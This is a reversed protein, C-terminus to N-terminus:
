IHILSLGGASGFCGARGFSCGSIGVCVPSILIRSSHNSCGSFGDCVSFVAGVPSTLNWSQRKYVDLHTYSVTRIYNLSSRLHSLKLEGNWDYIRRIINRVSHQQRTVDKHRSMEDNPIGESWSIRLFTQGGCRLFKLTAEGCM